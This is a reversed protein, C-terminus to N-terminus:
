ALGERRARSLLRDLKAGFETRLAEFPEARLYLRTRGLRYVRLGHRQAFRQVVASAARRTRPRADMVFRMLLQEAVFDRIDAIPEDGLPIGSNPPKYQGDGGPSTDTNEHSEIRAVERENYTETRTRLAREGRDHREM